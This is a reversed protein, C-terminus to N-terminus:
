RPPCWKYEPPGPDAELGAKLEDTFDKLADAAETLEAKMELIDDTNVGTKTELNELDEAVRLFGEATADSFKKCVEVAKANAVRAIVLGLKDAEAFLAIHQEPTIQAKALRSFINGLVDAIEERIPKKPM